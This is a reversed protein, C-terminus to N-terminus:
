TQVDKRGRPVFYSRPDLRRRGRAEYSPKLEVLQWATTRAPFCKLWAKETGTGSHKERDEPVGLSTVDTRRSRRQLSVGLVSVAHASPACRKLLFILLRGRTMQTAELSEVDRREPTSQDLSKKSLKESQSKNRHKQEGRPPAARGPRRRTSSGPEERQSLSSQSSLALKQLSRSM